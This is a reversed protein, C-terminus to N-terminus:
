NLQVAQEGLDGGVEQSQARAHGDEEELGLSLGRGGCANGTKKGTKWLLDVRDGQSRQHVTVARRMPEYDTAENGRRGEM